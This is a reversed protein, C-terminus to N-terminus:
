FSLFNHDWFDVGPTYKPDWTNPRLKINWIKRSRESNLGDLKPLGQKPLNLVYAEDSSKWGMPSLVMMTCMAQIQIQIVLLGPM